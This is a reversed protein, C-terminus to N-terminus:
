CESDSEDSEDSEDSVEDDIPSSMEKLENFLFLVRENTAIVEFLCFFKEGDQYTYSRPLKYVRVDFQPFLLSVTFTRKCNRIETLISGFNLRVPSLELSCRQEDYYSEEFINPLFDFSTLMSLVQKLYDLSEDAKISSKSRNIFYLTSVDDQSEVVIDFSRNFLLYRYIKKSKPEVTITPRIVSERLIRERREVTSKEIIRKLREINLEYRPDNTKVDISFDDNINLLEAFPYRYFEM